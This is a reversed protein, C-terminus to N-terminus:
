GYAYVRGLRSRALWHGVGCLWSEFEVESQGMTDLFRPVLFPSDTPAALRADCTTSSVVGEAELWPLLEPYYVGGPYCFHSAARGTARQIFDRNDRVERRFLDEKLPARHRHTHLQFEVGKGALEAAEQPTMLHLIRKRHFAEFDFGLREALRGLLDNKDEASLREQAAKALIAQQTRQLGAPTELDPVGQFGYEKLDEVGSARGKWLIYSCAVPFVPQPYASYYTTWYVMAPLGYKALLPYAQKYFDFLGDDFTIAVSRPPLEKEYLLKLAGALPLVSYGGDRLKRLRSEFRRPSIFLGPAWEHEDELSIGHYCLILLRERRWRSHELAEFAGVARFGRLLTRKLARLLLGPVRRTEARVITGASV